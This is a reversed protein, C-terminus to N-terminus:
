SLIDQSFAIEKSLQRKGSSDYFHAMRSETAVVANVVVSRPGQVSFLFGCVEGGQRLPQWTIPFAGIALKELQCLTKYVYDTLEVFSQIRNVPQVQM